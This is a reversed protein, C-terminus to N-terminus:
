SSISIVIINETFDHFLYSHARDAPIGAVGFAGLKENSAELSILTKSDVLWDPTFSGLWSSNWKM